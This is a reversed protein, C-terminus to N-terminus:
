FTIRIFTLLYSVFPFLVATISTISKRHRDSPLLLTWSWSLRPLLRAYEYASKLLLFPSPQKLLTIGFLQTRKQTNQPSFSEICLINMFFHKRNVTPLTQRTYRNVAPDLFTASTESIFFLPQLPLASTASVITLFSRHQPNRLVPLAIPCNYWHQHLIHRSIFTEVCTRIYCTKHKMDMQSRNLSERILIFYNKM